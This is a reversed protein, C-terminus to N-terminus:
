RYWVCVYSVDIVSRCVCVCVVCVEISTRGFMLPFDSFGRTREEPGDGDSENDEDKKDEETTDGTM